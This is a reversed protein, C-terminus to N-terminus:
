TNIKFPGQGKYNKISTIYVAIGAVLATVGFILFNESITLWCWNPLGWDIPKDGRELRGVGIGWGIGTTRFRSPYIRAAVAYLGVFGGQITFGLIGFIYLM